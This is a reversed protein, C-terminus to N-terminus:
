QAKRREVYAHYAICKGNSEAYAMLHATRIALNALTIVTFRNHYEESYTFAISFFIEGRVWVEFWEGCDDIYSKLEIENARYQGAITDNFITEFEKSTM